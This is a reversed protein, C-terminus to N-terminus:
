SVWGGVDGGGRGWAAAVAAAAATDADAAVVVATPLPPPPSPQSPQHATFNHSGPRRTRGSATHGPKSVNHGPRRKHRTM